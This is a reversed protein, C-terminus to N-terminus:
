RDRDERVLDEPLVLAANGDSELLRKRLARVTALRRTRASVEPMRKLEVVAQQSLSRHEAQARMALTDYVDEPLNRIQLSPM